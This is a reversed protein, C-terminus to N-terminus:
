KMEVPSGWREEAPLGAVAARRTPADATGTDGSRSSRHGSKPTLAEHQGHQHYYGGAPPSETKHTRSMKPSPPAFEVMLAKDEESPSNPIPPGGSSPGSSGSTGYYPAPPPYNSYGSGRGEREHEQHPHRPRHPQQQQQQQQQQQHHHQHQYEHEYYERGRKTGRDDGRDYSSSSSPPAGGGYQQSQQYQPSPYEYGGGPSHSYSYHSHYPTPPGERSYRPPSEYYAEEEHRRKSSRRSAAAAAAKRRKKEEKERKLLANAASKTARVDLGERLAQSTKAEAKEDGVECLLGTKDDKKVFRGGRKRIILVISRALLPKEKRKAMLYTPQFDTVLGRFRRNGAQTNTGGGRGLLVDHSNLESITNCVARTGEKVIPKMPPKHINFSVESASEPPPVHTNGTLISVGTTISPDNPDLPATTKAAKRNKKPLVIQTTAGYGDYSGSPYIARADQNPDYDRLLYAPDEEDRSYSPTAYPGGPHHYAAGSDYAYPRPQGSSSHTSEYSASPGIPPRGGYEHGSPSAYYSSYGEEGPAPFNSTPTQPYGPGGSPPPGFESSYGWSASNVADIYPGEYAAEHRSPTRPTRPTPPVSSGGAGSGSARRGERDGAYHHQSSSRIPSHPPVGAPGYSPRSSPYSYDGRDSSFSRSVTPSPKSRTRYPIVNTPSTMARGAAERDDESANSPGSDAQEKSDPRRVPSSPPLKYHRGPQRYPLHVNSGSDGGYGPQGFSDGPPWYPAGGYSPYGSYGPYGWAPATTAEGGTTPRSPSSEKSPPVRKDAEDRSSSASVTSAVMKIGASRGNGGDGQEAAVKSTDHEEQQAKPPSVINADTASTKQGQPGPGKASSASVAVGADNQTPTAQQKDKSTSNGGSGSSGGGGGVTDTKHERKPPRPAHTPQTPSSEEWSTNPTPMNFRPLHPPPVAGTTGPAGPHAFYGPPPPPGRHAYPGYPGGPPPPGYPGYPGYYYSPPGYPHHYTGPGPYGGPPPPPMGPPVRQPPPQPGGKGEKPRNGGGGGGSGGDAMPRHPRPRLPSVSKPAGTAAANDEEDASAAVQLIAEVGRNASVDKGDDGGGSGSGSGSGSGGAGGGSPRIDDGGASGSAAAADNGGDAAVAAAATDAAESDSIRRVHRAPPEAAAAAELMDDIGPSARPVVVEEIPSAGRANEVSAM